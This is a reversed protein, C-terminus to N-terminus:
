QVPAGDRPGKEKGSVPESGAAPTDCLAFFGPESARYDYEVGQSDIVIWYGPTQVQQYAMGPRPCGLSGDNWLVAQGRLMDFGTRVAGTRQELDALVNNLLEDPVEGTVAPAEVQAVPEMVKQEQMKRRLELREERTMAPTTEASSSGTEESKESDACASVGIGLLLALPVIEIRNKM